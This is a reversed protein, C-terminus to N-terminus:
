RSICKFGFESFILIDLFTVLVYFVFLIKKLVLNENNM